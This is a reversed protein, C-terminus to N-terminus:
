WAACRRDRRRPRVVRASPQLHLQRDAARRTGVSRGRLLDYGTRPPHVDGHAGYVQTRRGSLLAGDYRPLLRRLIQDRGARVAGYRDQRRDQLADYRPLVAQGYWDYRGRRPVRAGQATGVLLLDQRGAGATRSARGGRRRAPNRARAAPRGHLRRQGRRQLAHAYAAADTRHCLRLGHQRDLRRPVLDEHGTRPLDPGRRRVGGVRGHPRPAPPAPLRCLARSRGQLDRLRRPRFLRQVLARRRRESQAAAARAFGAGDHAGGERPRRQRHRFDRRAVDGCRRGAGAAGRAQLDVGAGYAVVPRPEEGRRLRGVQYAFPQGDGAPRGHRGGHGAGYGVACEASRAPPAVRPRRCGADGPRADDGRGARGRTRLQRRRGRPRLFRPRHASPAGQRRTRRARRASRVGRRLQGQRRGARDHPAGTRGASLGTRRTRAPPLDHGYELQSHSLPALDAVRHLRNRAPFAGRAHPRAVHRLAERDPVGRGADPGM